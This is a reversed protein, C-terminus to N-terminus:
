GAVRPLRFRGSASRVRLRLGRIAPREADYTRARRSAPLAASPEVVARRTQGHPRCAFIGPRHEPQGDGCVHRWAAPLRQRVPVAHHRPRDRVRWRSLVGDAASVFHRTRGLRSAGRPDIMQFHVGGEGEGGDHALGGTCVVTVELQLAALERAMELTSTEAGGRRVDVQEQVIAVRMSARSKREIRRLIWDSKRVIRRVYWRVRQAERPLHLYARLFRLRDTRSAGVQRASADLQSLDKIIWRMRRWRPRHVRALDILHFRPTKRVPKADIEAFIHCLYLDRHCLGTGHFAASSALWAGPSTTGRWGQQPPLM